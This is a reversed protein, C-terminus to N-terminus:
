LVGNIVEPSFISVGPVNCMFQSELMFEAALFMGDDDGDNNGDGPEDTNGGDPGAAWIMAMVDKVSDKSKAVKAETTNNDSPSATPKQQAKLKTEMKTKGTTATGTVRRVYSRGHADKRVIRDLTHVNETALYTLPLHPYHSLTDVLFRRIEQMVWVCTDDNRVHVLHLAKLARFGSLCRLLMHVATMNMSVALEQLCHARGALYRITAEDLDWDHSTENRLSLVEITRAHKNLIFHRIDELGPTPMTASTQASHVSDPQGHIGKHKLLYLRKLHSLESMCKLFARSVDDTYVQSLPLCKEHNEKAIWNWITAQPGVDLLTIKVLCGLDIATALVSAKVPILHCSLKKLKLGRTKLAYDAVNDSTAAVPQKGKANESMEAEEQPKPTMAEPTAKSEPDAEPEAQPEAESEEEAQEEDAGKDTPIDDPVDDPHLDLQGEPAEINIDEPVMDRGADAEQRVSKHSSSSTSTDDDKFLSTDNDSSETIPTSKSEANPGSESSSGPDSDSAEGVSPEQTSPESVVAASRAALYEQAVKTFRALAEEGPTGEIEAAATKIAALFSSTLAKVDLSGEKKKKAEADVGAETEAEVAKGKGKADAQQDPQTTEGERSETTGQQEPPPNRLDNGLIYALVLGQERRALEMRIMKNQTVANSAAPFAASSSSPGPDGAGFGGGGAGGFNSLDDLNDTYGAMNALNPHFPVAWAGPVSNQGNNVNTNINPLNSIATQTVPSSGNSQAHEHTKLRLACSFGLELENLTRACKHVCARLESAICLDDIDLVSLRRLNEFGSFTATGVRPPISAGYSASANSYAVNIPLGPFLEHMIYDGHHPQIGYQPQMMLHLAHNIQTEEATTPVQINAPQPAMQTSDIILATPPQTAPPVVFNAFQHTNGPPPFYTTASLTVPASSSPQHEGVAVYKKKPPRVYISPGSHLRVRLKVLARMDHLAKFLVPSIEVNMNWHFSELGQARRMSMIMLTNLMRCTFDDLTHPRNSGVSASFVNDCVNGIVFHRIHSAYDYDSAALTQLVVPLNNRFDVARHTHPERDNPPCLHIIHYLFETAFRHLQSSVRALSLLDSISLFM